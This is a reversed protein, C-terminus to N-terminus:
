GEVEPAPPLPMWHTTYRKGHCGYKAYWAQSTSDWQMVEFKFCYKTICLVRSGHSPLREEMSIWRPQERLAGIAMDYLEVDYRWNSVHNPFTEEFEDATKKALERRDCFMKIAEERTM